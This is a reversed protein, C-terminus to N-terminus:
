NSDSALRVQKVWRDLLEQRRCEVAQQLEEQKREAEERAAQEAKEIIAMDGGNEAYYARAADYDVFGSYKSGKYGNVKKQCNEWFDYYIGPQHGAVVAYFKKKAM